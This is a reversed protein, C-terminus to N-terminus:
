FVSESSAFMIGPHIVHIYSARVGEVAQDETFWSVAVTIGDVYDSSCTVSVSVGSAAFNNRPPQVLFESFSSTLSTSFFFYM